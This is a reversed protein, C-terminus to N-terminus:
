SALRFSRIRAKSPSVGYRRTFTDVFHSFSKFGSNFCVETVSLSTSQLLLLAHCLRIELLYQYPSCNTFQKFLRSFHFESVCAHFAIESLSLDREFNKTIYDKALEVTELHREKLRIHLQPTASRQMNPPYLMRFVEEVLRIMLADTHLLGKRNRDNFSQIASRYLHELLPSSEISLFPFLENEASRNTSSQDNRRYLSRAADLLKVPIRFTICEDGTIHEHRVVSYSGANELLVTQTHMDHRVGNIDYLFNGKRVFTISYSCAREPESVSHPEEKCRFETVSGTPSAYLPILEAKM